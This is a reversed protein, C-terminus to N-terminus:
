LPSHLEAFSVLDISPFERVAGLALREADRADRLRTRIKALDADNYGPHTVLEWTGEPMDGLLARVTDANFTGTGTVAITGDTSLFDARALIRRFFPGLRRL